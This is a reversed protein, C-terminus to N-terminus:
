AAIGEREGGILIGTDMTPLLAPMLINVPM